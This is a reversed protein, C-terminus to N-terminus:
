HHRPNGSWGPGGQRTHLWQVGKWQPVSPMALGHAHAGVWSIRRHIQRVGMTWQYRTRHSLMEHVFPQPNDAAEQTEVDRALSVSIGERVLKAAEKRKDPTILNLAGLQDDKGWRGWNSLEVVLKEVDAKTMAHRDQAHTAAPVITALIGLSLTFRVLFRFNIHRAM